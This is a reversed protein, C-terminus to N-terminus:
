RARAGKTAGPTGAGGTRVEVVRSGPFAQLAERVAPHDMIEQRMRAEAAHRAALREAVARAADSSSDDVEIQPRAGLVRAAAAALSESRRPQRLMEAATSGEPFALRIRELTLDVPVAQALLGALVRDTRALEEVVRSWADPPLDLVGAPAAERSPTRGADPSPPPPVPTAAGIPEVDWGL